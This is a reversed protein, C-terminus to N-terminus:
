ITNRDQENENGNSTRNTGRNREGAAYLDRNTYESKREEDLEKAKEPDIPAGRRWEIEEIIKKTAV